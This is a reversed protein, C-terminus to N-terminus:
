HFKFIKEVFNLFIILYWIEHFDTWQSGLQEIPVFLRVSPCMVFSVTAKSWKAFAGWFWIACPFYFKLFVCSMFDMLDRLLFSVLSTLLVYWDNIASTLVCDAGSWDSPAVLCLISRAKRNDAWVRARHTLWQGGCTHLYVLRCGDGTGCWWRHLVPWDVLTESVCLHLYSYIQNRSKLSECRNQQHTCDSYFPCV